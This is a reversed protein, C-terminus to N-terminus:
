WSGEIIFSTYRTEVREDLEEIDSVRASHPGEALHRKFEELKANDGIAYVEVRGDWLNKVYGRVGLQHAVREAFFRYGM